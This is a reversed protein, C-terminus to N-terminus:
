DLFHLSQLHAFVTTPTTLVVGGGWFFLYRVYMFCVIYQLDLHLMLTASWHLFLLTYLM